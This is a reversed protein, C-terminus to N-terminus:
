RLCQTGRCVVLWVIFLILCVAVDIALVIRVQRCWKNRITQNSSRNMSSVEKTLSIGTVSGGQNNVDLSSSDVKSGGKDGSKRHEEVVGNERVSIMHDRMKRKEHKSAKGLLPAKTSGGSDNQGNNDNCTPSPSLGDNYNALMAGEVVVVELSAILRRVVPMLKDQLVVSNMIKSGKKSVKNFEDRVHGLFELNKRNGVNEDVIAFYVFKDEMLFGFTKNSMTQFYWKHHPPSKQLCLAALNDIEQDVGNNYAYIVKGNNWICCYYVTNRISGM